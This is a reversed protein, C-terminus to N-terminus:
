NNERCKKKKLIQKKSEFVFCYEKRLIQLKEHMYLSTGLFDSFFVNLVSIHIVNTQTVITAQLQRLSNSNNQHCFLGPMGIRFVPLM